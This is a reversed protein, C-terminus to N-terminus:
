KKLDKLYDYLVVENKLSQYLEKVKNSWLDTEFNSEVQDAEGNYWLKHGEEYEKYPLKYSYM